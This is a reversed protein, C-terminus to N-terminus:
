DANYTVVTTAFTRHVTKLHVMGVVIYAVGVPLFLLTGLNAVLMYTTNRALERRFQALPVRCDEEAEFLALLQGARFVRGREDYYKGSYKIKGNREYKMPVLIRPMEFAGAAIATVLDTQSYTPRKSAPPSPSSGAGLDAALVNACVMFIFAFVTSM